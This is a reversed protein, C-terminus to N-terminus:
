NCVVNPVLIENISKSLDCAINIACSLSYQIFSFDIFLLEDNSDM